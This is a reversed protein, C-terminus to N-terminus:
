MVGSIDGALGPEGSIWWQGFAFTSGQGRIGLTKNRNSGDKTLGHSVESTISKQTRYLIM